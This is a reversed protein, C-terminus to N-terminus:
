MRKLQNMARGCVSSGARLGDSVAPKFHDTTDGVGCSYGDRFGEMFGLKFTERLLGAVREEQQEIIENLNRNPLAM